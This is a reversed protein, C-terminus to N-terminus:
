ISSLFAAYDEINYTVRDFQPSEIEQMANPDGYESLPAFPTHVARRELTRAGKNTSVSVVNVYQKLDDTTQRLRNIKTQIDEPIIYGGDEGEKSTLRAKYQEMVELEEDSMKHGRIAKFFFSKFEKTEEKIKYPKM